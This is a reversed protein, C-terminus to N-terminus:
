AASTLGALRAKRQERRKAKEAVRQHRATAADVSQHGDKHNVRRQQRPTLKTRGTQDQYRIIRASEDLM